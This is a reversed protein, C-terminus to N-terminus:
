ASSAYHFEYLLTTAKAVSYVVPDLEVTVLLSALSPSPGRRSEPRRLDSRGDV